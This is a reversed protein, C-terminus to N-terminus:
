FYFNLNALTNWFSSCILIRSVISQFDSLEHTIQTIKGNQYRFINYYNKPDSEAKETFDETYYLDGNAQFTYSSISSNESGAILTSKNIKGNKLEAYYLKTSDWRM